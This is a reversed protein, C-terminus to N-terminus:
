DLSFQDNNPFFQSLWTGEKAMDEQSRYERPKEIQEYIEDNRAFDGKRRPMIHVHVHFVTQGSEKGDQVALTLSTANHEREIVTSIEQSSRFLDSVEDPTLDKFREVRRKPIVLVHGKVAPMLSVIGLSLRSRYFVETSSINYQGFVVTRLM